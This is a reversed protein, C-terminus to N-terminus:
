DSLFKKVLSLLEQPKEAHVWHGSGEVSEVKSNPFHMKILSLDAEQIYDSKEGGIFLTPKKFKRNKDLAKGIEESNNRIGDVNLKWYFGDSSRGLNKLIFQRVGFDEIATAMAADAEGRSQINSLDIAGFGDFIQQHHPPYSKPAIDVVVLKSVRNENTTAFEMAAKGGMSHGIVYAHEIEEDDMFGEIDERMLAYSFDASHPSKGHNRLDVLYVQYEESLASGITKWNDLSGFVGHLIIVPKGKGLVKFNLKM